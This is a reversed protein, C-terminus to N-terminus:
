EPTGTTINTVVYRIDLGLRTAEIRAAVRREQRWTKAAHTPEAVGRVADTDSVARVVRIHDSTAEVKAALAKTGTLGLVYAVGNDECWDMVGPRGYHGDGRLTIATRPWHRRIARVRRRLHSSVERGSPTKGPRLIM